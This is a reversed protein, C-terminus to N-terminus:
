LVTPDENEQVRPKEKERSILRNGDRTLLYSDNRNDEIYMKSPDVKLIM